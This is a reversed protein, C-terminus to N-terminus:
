HRKRRPQKQFQSYVRLCLFCGVFMAMFYRAHLGSFGLPPREKYHVNELYHFGAVSLILILAATTTLFRAIIFLMVFFLGYDMVKSARDMNGVGNDSASLAYMFAVASMLFVVSWAAIKVQAKVARDARSKAHDKGIMLLPQGRQSSAGTKTKRKSLNFSDKAVGEKKSVTGHTGSVVDNLNAPHVTGGGSLDASFPRPADENVPPPQRESMSGPGGLPLAGGAGEPSGGTAPLTPADIRQQIAEHAKTGKTGQTGEKASKKRGVGASPKRSGAADQSFAGPKGPKGKTRLVQPTKKKTQPRSGAGKKGAGKKGPDKRGTVLILPASDQRGKWTDSENGSGADSSSM